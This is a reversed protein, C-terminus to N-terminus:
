DGDDGSGDNGEEGPSGKAYNSELDDDVEPSPKNDDVVNDHHANNANFINKLWEFM